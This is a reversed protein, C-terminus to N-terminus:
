GPITLRAYLGERAFPSHGGFQSVKGSLIRNLLEANSHHSIKRNALMLREVYIRFQEVKVLDVSENLGERPAILFRRCSKGNFPCTKLLGSPGSDTPLPKGGGIGTTAAHLHSFNRGRASLNPVSDNWGCALRVGSFTPQRVTLGREL